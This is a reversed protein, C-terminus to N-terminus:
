PHVSAWSADSVMNTVFDQVSIGAASLQPQFWLVHGTGAAEFYQLNANPVFDNTVDEALGNDFQATSIGFYSPLVSDQQYTLLAGRRTPFAKAYFDYLSTLDTACATCGAPLTAALNWQAREVPETNTGMALIDSPMFTGSDDIVDVPVSGFAQQTQGWNFVAGFGGASSGALVVHTAAPFTPVIRSLFTSFNRFGVHMATMGGYQVVNAGAYIDGTCYPVYVYSYDKFPNAAATRDFFGGPQALYNPDAAETMFDMQSYGTTFYSATMLTDCTLESWCAGGGELYVLVRSSASSPNLGIGTTSGNGCFANSFPVWTWQDVTAVIPAGLPLAGDTGTLSGDASIADVSADAPGDPSVADSPTTMADLPSDNGVAADEQSAGISSRDTPSAADSPPISGNSGCAIASSLLGATALLFRM